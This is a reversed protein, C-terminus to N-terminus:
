VEEWQIGIERAVGQSLMVVMGGRTASESVGGNRSGKRLLANWRAADAEKFSQVQHWADQHDREFVFVSGGKNARPLVASAGQPEESAMCAQKGKPTVPVASFREAFWDANFGQWSNGIMLEVADTRNSKPIRAFERALLEAARETLPKKMQQRHEWVAEADEKSLVTALIDICRQKRSTRKSKNAPRQEELVLTCSPADAGHRAQAGERTTTETTIETTTETNNGGNPCIRNQGKPPNLEARQASKIQGILANNIADIHVTFHRTPPVGKVAVDIFGAEKLAKIATRQEKETLSTEAEMEHVTKYISEGNRRDWWYLLQQLLIAATISGTIKRLAPYFAIPRESLLIHLKMLFGEKMPNVSPPAPTYRLASVRCM